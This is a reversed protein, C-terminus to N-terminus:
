DLAEIAEKENQLWGLFMPLPVVMYTQGRDERIATVDAGEPPKIYAPLSKRRKAQVKLDEEILVDVEATCGPLSEGNSGWARKAELGFDECAKVLEREFGNGKVKSPHSM